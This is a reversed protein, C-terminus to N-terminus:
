TLRVPMSTVAHWRTGPPPPSGASSSVWGSWGTPRRSRVGWRRRSRTPPLPSVSRRDKGVARPRAMIMTDRSALEAAVERVGAAAASELRRYCALADVLERDAMAALDARDLEDVLFGDVPRRSLAQADVRPLDDGGLDEPVEARVVRRRSGDPGATGSEGTSGPEGAVRAVRATPRIADVGSDPALDVRADDPPLGDFQDVFEAYWDQYEMEREFAAVEALDEPSLQALATEDLAAYDIVRVAASPSVVSSACCEGSPTKAQPHSEGEPRDFM